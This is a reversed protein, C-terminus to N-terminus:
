NNDSDDDGFFLNRIFGPTLLSIPNVSIHPNDLNGNIGYSVALVGQHQGGTILEGILPIANLVDNVVSFPVLTGSLDAQGTNMDIDGDINIGVAAGTAHVKDLSLTDSKWTFRGKLLSFSMSDTLIGTIGFPSTANLLLALVPLKEVTFDKIKLGGTIVRPDEPSSQGVINMKGGQVTDTFGLGKLAKGFNDCKITFTRHGDPHPTLEIGIPTDEAMGSFNIAAWGEKDRSAFGNAKDIEGKESTYLKDIKLHYEKPRPDAKDPDNGGRLGSVDLSKGTADFRLAGDAGFSQEFELSADTRGLILKPFDFSILQKMDPSLVATGNASVRTGRLTINTIRVPDNGNAEANFKLVAPVNAPKKWKLMDVALEAPTLDLAGAFSTKTKTPKTMEATVNIAGKTGMFATVGLSAWQDERVSGTATVHRLPRNPVQEFSEDWAINFPAKGLSIQGKLNFGKTDVELALNGQELPVGPILKPSAVETATAIAKIDVDKMLLSNLLPFKFRVVGSIKGTLDQPALGLKKAYELPPNNLLRLVETLPGSVQMPIDIYQDYDSLGTIVLTFPQLRLNGIGGGSLQVEMKNLNFTALADVGEVPPMGEIYKVQGKSASVKGTAELVKMDEIKDFAVTGKLTVEAYDYIGNHLNESLWARPNAMVPKPWIEAFRNMPLKEVKVEATFDLDKQPTVSPRGDVKVEIAPGGFDVRTDSVSLKRMMRDYKANVEVSKVARPKDWFDPYVFRGDEGYIHAAVRMVTLAKDFTMDIKGNLPLDLASALGLGLAGLSGGAIEAPTVNSFVATMTHRRLAPDYLYHVDVSADAKSLPVDVKIRGDLAGYKLARDFDRFGNRKISVEPVSVAWSKDTVQDHVDIVAHGMSLRYLFSTNSLKEAIGGIMDSASGSAAGSSGGMTLGGFALVGKADRELKFQPHDVALEKPMLQGFALGLLSIKADMVPIFVFEVGSKDLIKVNRINLTFAREVSSWGLQTSELRADSGPFAREIGTEIYPTLFDPSIPSSSLRYALLMACVIGVGVLTALVEFVYRLFRLM